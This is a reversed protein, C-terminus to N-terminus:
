EPYGWAYLTEGGESGQETAMSKGAPIMLDASDGETGNVSVSAMGDASRSLFLWDISFADTGSTNTIKIEGDTRRSCELATVSLSDDQVFCIDPFGDGESIVWAYEGPPVVGPVCFVASGNEGNVTDAEGLVHGSVNLLKRIHWNGEIGGCIGAELEEATEMWKLGGCVEELPYARPDKEEDMKDEIKLILDSSVRICPVSRGAKIGPYCIEGDQSGNMDIMRFARETLRGDTQGFGRVYSGIYQPRLTGTGGYRGFEGTNLFDLWEEQRGDEISDRMTMYQVPITYSASGNGSVSVETDMCYVYELSVCRLSVNDISYWARCITAGKGAEHETCPDLEVCLECTGSPDIIYKGGNKNIGTSAEENVKWGSEEAPIHLAKMNGSDKLTLAPAYDLSIDAGPLESWRRPIYIHGEATYIRIKEFGPTMAQLRKLMAHESSERGKRSNAGIVVPSMYQDTLRGSIIYGRSDYSCGAATDSYQELKGEEYSATIRTGVADVEYINRGSAAELASVTGGESEATVEATVCKLPVPGDGATVEPEYLYRIETKGERYSVTVQVDKLEWEEKAEIVYAGREGSWVCEAVKLGTRVEAERAHSETDKFTLLWSEGEASLAAEPADETACAFPIENWNEPLIIQDERILSIWSSIETSRNELSRFVKTIQNKGWAETEAGAKTDGTEAREEKVVATHEARLGMGSDGTKGSLYHGGAIAAIAVVAAVSVAAARRKREPRAKKDGAKAADGTRDTVGEDKYLMSTLAKKMESATQFRDEPAYSCAKLILGAMEPSANAPPEILEGELRRRLAERKAAPSYLQTQPFFPLRNGNLLWYLTLALSYLDARTDYERNIAVEPAMYNPTGKYSMGQTRNELNRAIGFDGLKYFVHTGIRDNVFINAPKIDRHIIGQEECLELASCIDIGIRITEEESLAKDSIYKELPTLLEMRIFISSGIGDERPIVKFDEISVINQMGKFREMLGIEKTFDRVAEEFYTRSLEMTFGDALLEGIEQDDQPITIVKVACRVSPHERRVAEYVVSYSGRGLEGTLEWDSWVSPLTVVIMREM